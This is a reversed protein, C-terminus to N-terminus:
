DNLLLGRYLKATQEAMAALTFTCATAHLTAAMDIGADRDELLTRLAATLADVGGAPVLLGTQADTILEPIGGVNSAVVPVAALGAELIVYAAAESQSPLVFMDFAKLFRAAEPLAGVLFVHEELGLHKIQKTLAARQEGEGIIIYRLNPVAHILAAVADIAVPLNKIPHLEAITGIWPDEHFDVLGREMSTVNMEILQRADDKSKFDIPARGLRITQMKARTLPWCMQARLANSVTITRHAFMITLWHTFGFLFRQWRPRDENFAWGHATFIVRPVRYLRGLMTGYIGAKSSNIHFVDPREAKIQRAIQWIARLEKTFSIDRQLAPITIVRIHADHLKQALEGNGGLLVVIEFTAPDLTTALDYVYRQAGGWNSKTILFLVKKQHPNQM